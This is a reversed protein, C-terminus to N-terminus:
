QDTIWISGFHFRIYFAEFHSEILAVTTVHIYIIKINHIVCVVPEKQTHINDVGLATYRAHM